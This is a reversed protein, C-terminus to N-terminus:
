WCNMTGEDQGEVIYRQLPPAMPSTECRVPLSMRARRRVLVVGITGNPVFLTTSVVNFAQAAFGIAATFEASTWSGRIGAQDAVPTQARAATERHSTQRAIRLTTSGHATLLL